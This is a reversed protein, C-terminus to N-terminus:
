LNYPKSKVKSWEHYNLMLKTKIVKKWLLFSPFKHTYNENIWKSIWENMEILILTYICTNFSHIFFILFSHIFFFSLHIFWMLLHIFTMLRHCLIIYDFFLWHSTTTDNSTSVNIKNISSSEKVEKRIFRWWTLFSHKSFLTKKGYTFKAM